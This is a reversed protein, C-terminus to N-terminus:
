AKKLENGFHLALNDTVTHERSGYDLTNGMIAAFCLDRFGQDETFLPEGPTARMRM